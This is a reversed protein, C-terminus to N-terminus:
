QLRPLRIRQGHALQSRSYIWWRCTLWWESELLRSSNTKKILSAKRLSVDRVMGTYPIFNLFKFSIVVVLFSRFLPTERM